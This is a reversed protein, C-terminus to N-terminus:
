NNWKFEATKQLMIVVPLSGSGSGLLYDTVSRDQIRIYSCLSINTHTGSVIGNHCTLIRLSNRKLVTSVTILNVTVKRM